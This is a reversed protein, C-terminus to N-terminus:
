KESVKLIRAAEYIIDTPEMQLESEIEKQRAKSLALLEPNEEILDSSALGAYELILAERNSEM